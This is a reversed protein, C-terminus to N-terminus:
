HPWLVEVVVAVVFAVPLAVLGALAGAAVAAWGPRGETVAAAVGWTVGAGPIALLAAGMVAVLWPDWRGTRSVPNATGVRSGAWAALAITAVLTATWAARRGGARLILLTLASWVPIALLLALRPM